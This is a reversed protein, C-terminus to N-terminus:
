SAYEKLVTKPGVIYGNTMGEHGCKILKSILKELSTLHNPLTLKYYTYM